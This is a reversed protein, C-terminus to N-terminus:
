KLQNKFNIYRDYANSTLAKKRNIYNQYIGIQRTEAKNEIANIGADAFGLIQIAEDSTLWWEEELLILLEDTLKGTRIELNTLINEKEMKDLLKATKRLELANGSVQVEPKHYMVMAGKSITVNETASFLMTAASACVGLVNFTKPAQSGALLNAIAVAEFVEGGYSNINVEIEDGKNISQLENSIIQASVDTKSKPQSTIDGFINIIKKM